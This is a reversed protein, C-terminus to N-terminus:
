GIRRVGSAVIQDPLEVDATPRGWTGEAFRNRGDGGVAVDGFGAEELKGRISENSAIQEFMGLRIPAYYRVGQELIM